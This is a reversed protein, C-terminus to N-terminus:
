IYKKRLIMICWNTLIVSTIHNKFSTIEERENMFQTIWGGSPNSGLDGAKSASSKGVSSNRNRMVICRSYTLYILQWVFVFIQISLYTWMFVWKRCSLACMYKNIWINKSLMSLHSTTLRKNNKITTFLTIQIQLQLQIQSYHHQHNHHHNQSTGRANTNSIFMFMGEILACNTLSLFVVKVDNLIYINQTTNWFM